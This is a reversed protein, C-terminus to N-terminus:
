LSLAVRRLTLHRLPACMCPLALWVFIHVNACVCVPVHVGAQQVLQRERELLEDEAARRQRVLEREKRMADEAREREEEEKRKERLQRVRNREGM